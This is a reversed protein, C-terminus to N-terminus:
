DHTIKGPDEPTIPGESMSAPTVQIDISKWVVSQGGTLLGVTRWM